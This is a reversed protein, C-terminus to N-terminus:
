LMTGEISVQRHFSELFKGTITGPKGDGIIRADIEVIPVIEAATGTLFIEDAVWVDYRTVNAERWPIDLKDAKVVALAALGDFGPLSYDALIIDPLSDALAQQFDERNTVHQWEFDPYSKRIERRILEAHEPVDELSLVKIRDPM